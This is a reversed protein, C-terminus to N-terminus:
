FRMSFCCFVFIDRVIATKYNPVYVRMVAQLESESLFRRDRYTVNIHFGAFPDSTIWGNKFASAAFEGMEKSFSSFASIVIDEAEKFTYSRKAKGVPAMIDYWSLKELGLLRAKVGMYSRFTPISKEIAHILADLAKRTTRSQFLSRELPSSWGRRKELMLTTGKVGNLSYALATEHEKLIAKERMYADRRVERSPHTSLARLEILTMGGNSASSTIAQQLREWSSSSLSLFDLALNEEAESMQHRSLVEIESLLLSYDKLEPSSFEDRRFSASRVFAQWAEQYANEAAEADNVAKMYASESTNTSLIASAYSSTNSVLAGAESLLSLLKAISFSELNGTIVDKLEYIRALDAKFENSDVSPYIPGLDWHPLRDKEM